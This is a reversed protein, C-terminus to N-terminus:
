DRRDGVCQAMISAPEGREKLRASGRVHLQELQSQLQIRIQEVQDKGARRPVTIIPAIEFALKTFPGPVIFKDWSSLERGISVQYSAPVIPLSTIQALKIVGPQVQYIPGRPGDTAIAIDYGQRAMRIAQTFSRGGGKSSSGRITHFGFRDLFSAVFDGDRSRSAMAVLNKLHMRYRYIFPLVLLRNHWFALIAQGHERYASALHESGFVELYM